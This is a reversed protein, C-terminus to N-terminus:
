ENNGKEMMFYGIQIMIKEVLVARAVESHLNIGADAAEKVIEELKERM